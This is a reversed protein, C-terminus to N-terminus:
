AIRPTPGPGQQQTPYLDLRATHPVLDPALPDFPLHDNELRTRVDDALLERAAKVGTYEAVPLREVRFVFGLTERWLEQSSSVQDIERLGQHVQTLLERETPPVKDYAMRSLYDYAIRCRDDHLSEAPTIMQLTRAQEPYCRISAVLQEELGVRTGRAQPVIEHDLWPLGSEIRDIQREVVARVAEWRTQGSESYRVEDVEARVAANAQRVLASEAIMRATDRMHEESMPELRAMRLMQEFELGPLDTYRAIEVCLHERIGEAEHDLIEPARELAAPIADFIAGYGPHSFDEGRLWAATEQVPASLLSGIYRRETNAILESMTAGREGLRLQM